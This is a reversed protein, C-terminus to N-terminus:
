PTWVGTHYGVGYPASDFRHEVTPSEGVLGALLNWVPRASVGLEACEEVDLGALFASDGADLATALNKEFLPARDHFAGPAKYTVRCSGDAILLVAIPEASKDCQERLRRGMEVAGEPSTGASILEPHIEVHPAARSRLWGAILMALPWEPDVESIVDPRLAVRVDRGYAAFTGAKVGSAPYTGEGVLIWSDAVAALASAVGIAAARLDDTERAAAGCLEPVLLPPSPVFGAAVFM